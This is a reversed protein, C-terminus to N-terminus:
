TGAQLETEKLCEQLILLFDILAQMRMGLSERQVSFVFCLLFLVDMQEMKM